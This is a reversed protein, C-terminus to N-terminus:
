LENHFYIDTNHETDLQSQLIAAQRRWYARRIPSTWGLTKYIVQDLGFVIYAILKM